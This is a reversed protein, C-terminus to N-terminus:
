AASQQRDKGTKRLEMSNISSLVLTIEKVEVKFGVREQESKDVWNHAILEGLITVRVGKKLFKQINEHLRENWVECDMYFGGKEVPGNDGPVYRDFYSRFTLVQKPEGNVSVPKIEPDTALNCRDRITAM